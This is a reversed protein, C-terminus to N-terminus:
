GAAKEEEADNKKQFLLGEGMEARERRGERARHTQHLGRVAQSRERTWMEGAPSTRAYMISRHQRRVRM